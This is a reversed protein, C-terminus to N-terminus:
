NVCDALCVEDLHGVKRWVVWRYNDIFSEVDDAGNRLIFQSDTLNLM